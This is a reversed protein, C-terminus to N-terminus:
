TLCFNKVAFCCIFFLSCQFSCEVGLILKSFFFRFFSQDTFCGVKMWYEALSMKATPVGDDLCLKLGATQSAFNCMESSLVGSVYVGFDVVASKAAM